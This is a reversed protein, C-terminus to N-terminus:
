GVLWWVSIDYVMVICGELCRRWVDWRCVVVCFNVLLLVGSGVVSGVVCLGVFIELEGWCDVCGVWGYRLRNEIKKVFGVIYYVSGSCCLMMDM